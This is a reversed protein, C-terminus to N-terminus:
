NFHTLKFMTTLLPLKLRLTQNKEKGMEGYSGIFQAIFHTICVQEMVQQYPFDKQREEEILVKVMAMMEKCSHTILTTYEQIIPHCGQFERNILATALLIKSAPNLLDHVVSLLETRQQPSYDHNMAM